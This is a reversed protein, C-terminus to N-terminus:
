IVNYLANTYSTISMNIILERNSIILMSKVNDKLVTKFVCKLNDDLKKVKLKNENTRRRNKM